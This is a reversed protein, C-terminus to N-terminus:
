APVAALGLRRRSARQRCAAGCYLRRRGTPAAQLERGCGPAVCRGARPAIQDAIAALRVAEPDPFPLNLAPAVARRLRDTIEALDHEGPMRSASLERWRRPTDWDPLVAATVRGAIVTCRQSVWDLEEPAQPNVRGLRGADQGAATLRQHELVHGAQRALPGARRLLEGLLDLDRQAREAVTPDAGLAAVAAGAAGVARQRAIGSAPHVDGPVRDALARLEAAIDV